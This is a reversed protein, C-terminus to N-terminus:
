RDLGSGNPPPTSAYTSGAAESPLPSSQKMWTAHM